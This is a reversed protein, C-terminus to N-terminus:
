YDSFSGLIDTVLKTHILQSFGPNQPHTQVQSQAVAFLRWSCDVVIFPFYVFSGTKYSEKIVASCLFESKHIGLFIGLNM